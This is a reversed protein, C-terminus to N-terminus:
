AFTFARLPNGNLIKDITSSKLDGRENLLDELHDARFADGHPYDTATILCDDGVRDVVHTIDDGVACAVFLRAVLWDTFKTRGGLERSFTPVWDSGIELIAVKLKPFDDMASSGFLQTVGYLVQNLGGGYPNNQPFQVTNPRPFGEAMFRLTPSVNGTHILLPLELRAAEEYIPWFDPNSLPMDWEIGHTYVGAAGGLAKVRRLEAVADAPRRYPIVAAFFLRGSSKACQTAMYTNWSTALASELEPDEAVPGQWITPFIIQKDIGSEAMSAVRGEVDTLDQIAVPAGKQSSRNMITPTGGYLRLKYDIVWAANHAGFVTDEPFQVILPRHFEPDLYSWAEEPEEVHADCDIVLM